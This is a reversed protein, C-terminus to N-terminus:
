ARKWAVAYFGDTGHLDPRLELADEPCTPIPVDPGLLSSIPLRQLEPHAREFASALEQNEAADITCTAYVLRGGSAVFALARELISRQLPPFAEVEAQATRWRADPGRRLTGLSSCPADVLVVEAEELGPPASGGPALPRVTVCRVGARALRPKMDALRRVDTDLATLQGRDEMQAALALTKGGAGACFDICRQGPRPGALLAILQSGEDQVEFLGDRWAQSGFINPRGALHIGWPSWTTPSGEIRETALRALAAERTARLTNVRITRPGPRNTVTALRDAAEIGLQRAWLEALWFPLSREAALREIAASPWPRPHELAPVADAPLGAEAAAAEPQAGEQDVLYAALLWSPREESPPQGAMGLLHDLRGRLCAIALSRRAVVQREEASLDRNARLTRELARDAAIREDFCLALTSVVLERVRHRDV